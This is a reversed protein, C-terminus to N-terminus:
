PQHEITHPSPTQWASPVGILAGRLHAVLEGVDLEARHAAGAGRHHQVAHNGGGEAPPCNWTQSDSCIDAASRTALRAVSSPGQGASAAGDFPRERCMPTMTLM